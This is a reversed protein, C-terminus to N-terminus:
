RPGGTKSLGSLVEQAAPDRALDLTGKPYMLVRNEYVNKVGTVADSGM